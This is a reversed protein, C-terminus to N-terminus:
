RAFERAKGLRSAIYEAARTGRKPEASIYNDSKSSSTMSFEDITAGHESRPVLTIVSHGGCGWLGLRQSQDYAPENAIPVAKGM